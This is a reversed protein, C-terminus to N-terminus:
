PKLSEAPLPTARPKDRERTRRQVEERHQQADRQKDEFQSRKNDHGQLHDSQKRALNNAREASEGQAQQADTQRQQNQRDRESLRQQADQTKIQREQAAQEVELKRLARHSVTYQERAQIRCDTVNFAQYCQKTQAKYDQELKERQSKLELGRAAVSERNPMPTTNSSAPKNGDQALAMNTSIAWTFFLCLGWLRRM